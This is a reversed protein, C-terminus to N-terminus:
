RALLFVPVDIVCTVDFSFSDLFFFRSMKGKLLLSGTGKNRYIVSTGKGFTGTDKYKTVRALSLVDSVLVKEEGFAPCIDRRQRKVNLSGICSISKKLFRTCIRRTAQAPGRKKFSLQITNPKNVPLNNFFPKKPPTKPTKTPNQLPSFSPYTYYFCYPSYVPLRSSPILSPTFFVNMKQNYITM